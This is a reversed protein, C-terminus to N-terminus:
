HLLASAMTSRSSGVVVTAGSDVRSARFEGLPAWWARPERVAGIPTDAPRHEAFLQLARELLGPEPSEFCVVFDGAAAARVRPQVDEWTRGTLALVVRDAGPLLGLRAAASAGPGAAAVPVVDVEARDLDEQAPVGPGILAAAFGAVALRLAESARAQATDLERVETGPVLLPRVAAADRRSCVVVASRRLEAEERPTREEAPAPQVIALRGRPLVRAAAATATGGTVKGVALHARGFERAARLAAAEAVSPTGVEARVAESPHPVEVEALADDPYHRLPLEDGGAGHWFGADRVAERIGPEGARRDATAFARLARLDLGHERDLRAVLESVVDRSVGSSAGVGVVLTRPVLRVTRSEPEKPRRDDVVITWVPHEVDGRVNGPLAPLAFGLPNELLVPHGQLVADGCAALDGDVAADLLDVVEDLATSAASDATVVPEAGLAQAVQEALPGSGRGALAVAFRHEDDVSVVAPDTRGDRLLGGTLRVAADVGLLLVAADLETWVRRLAPGPPGDAVVAEAGLQAAVDRAAARGAPTGAFVGIV